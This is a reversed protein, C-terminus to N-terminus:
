TAIVKIAGHLVFNNLAVSNRGIQNLELGFEAMSGLKIVARRSIFNQM